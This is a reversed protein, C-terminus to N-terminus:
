SIVDEWKKIYDKSTINKYKSVQFFVFCNGSFCIAIKSIEYYSFSASWEFKYLFLVSIALSVLIFPFHWSVVRFRSNEYKKKYEMLRTEWLFQEGEHFVKLYAGIKCMAQMKNLVILYAPIIVIYSLLIFITDDQLLAFANYTAIFVYFFNITNNVLSDLHLIEERLMLYEEKM